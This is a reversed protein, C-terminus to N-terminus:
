LSKTLNKIITKNLLNNNILKKIESKKKFQFKRTYIQM